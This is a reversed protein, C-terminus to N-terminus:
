NERPATFREYLLALPVFFLTHAAVFYLMGGASLFASGAIGEGIWPESFRWAHAAHRYAEVHSNDRAFNKAGANLSPM